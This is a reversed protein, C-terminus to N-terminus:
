DLETEPLCRFHCCECKKVDDWRVLLRIKVSMVPFIQLTILYNIHVTLCRSSRYRSIIESEICADRRSTTFSNVCTAVTTIESSFLSIMEILQSFLDIVHLGITHIVAVILKISERKAGYANKHSYSSVRHETRAWMLNITSSLLAIKLCLEHGSRNNHYGDSWWWFCRNLNLSEEYKVICSDQWFRTLCFDGCWSFFNIFVALEKWM